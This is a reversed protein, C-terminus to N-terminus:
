RLAVPLADLGRLIMRHSWAPEDTSPQMRPFRRVLRPLAIQGEMRALSAGLCYHPGGGFSVHENAGRRAIDFVDASAGWKRPDHNASSLALALTTGTPLEQDGVVVPEQAIRFTFQAPSDYRLVEEVANADLGVDGRLLELQDPSRFLNMMGNGVLNVTTEHGAIYLLLVQAEVEADDLCDGSEEAQLLGTLIDDAPHARKDAVLVDLYEYLARGATASADQQDPTQLPEIGAVLTRSWERLQPIDARPVGLMESIIQAPLPLAYDTILDIQDREGAKALRDEVISEAKAKWLAVARPTFVTSVLRRLRTHDHGDRRIMMKAMRGRAPQAASVSGILAPHRALRHVDDYRTVLQAGFLESWHLASSERLAGLLVYPDQFYGEVRPDLQVLGERPAAPVALRAARAPTPGLPRQNAMRLRAALQRLLAVALSPSALLAEIFPEGDMEEVILQTVATVTAGRPQGDLLALEGITEGPGITGAYLGAVTVDALGEIVVWWRDAKDGEACVVDGDGFVRLGASAKLVRELDATECGEFLALDALETM